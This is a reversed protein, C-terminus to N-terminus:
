LVENGLLPASVRCPLPQANEPDLANLIIQGTRETAIISLHDSLDIECGDQVVINTAGDLRGSTYPIM